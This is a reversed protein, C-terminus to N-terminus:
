ERAPAGASQVLWGGAMEEDREIYVVETEPGVTEGGELAEVRFAIDLTDGCCGVDAFEEFQDGVSVTERRQLKKRLYNRYRDTGIQDRGWASLEDPHSLVVTSAREVREDRESM